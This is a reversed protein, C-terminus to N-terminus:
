HLKCYPKAGSSPLLDVSWTSVKLEVGFILKMKLGKINVILQFVAFCFDFMQQHFCVVTFLHYDNTQHIVLHTVQSSPLHKFAVSYSPQSLGCWRHRQCMLVLHHHVSTSFTLASTTGAHPHIQLCSHKNARDTKRVLWCSVHQAEQKKTM